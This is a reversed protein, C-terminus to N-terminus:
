DLLVGAKPLASLKSQLKLTLMRKTQWQRYNVAVQTGLPKTLVLVDGPKSQNPEIFDPAKCTSQAVGGIIPWPNLVTQGGTVRTHALRCCDAFGKMMQKTVTFRSTPDMQRSAALTMLVTDINEIGLAYM